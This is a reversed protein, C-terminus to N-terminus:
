QESYTVSIGCVSITVEQGDKNTMSSLADIMTGCILYWIIGIGPIYLYAISRWPIFPNCSTLTWGNKSIIDKKGNWSLRLYLVMATGLVLQWVILTIIVKLIM